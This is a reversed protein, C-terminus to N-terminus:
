VATREGIFRTCFDSGLRSIELESILSPTMNEQGITAALASVFDARSTVVVSTPVITFNLLLLVTFHLDIAEM